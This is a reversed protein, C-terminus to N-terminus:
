PERTRLTSIAYTRRNLWRKWSGPGTERRRRRALCNDYQEHSDWVAVLVVNDADDSIRLAEVTVFGEYARTEPLTSRFFTFVEHGTGPKAEVDLIVRVAKETEGYNALVAAIAILQSRDEICNELQM